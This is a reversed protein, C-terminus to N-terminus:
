IPAASDLFYQTPKTEYNINVATLSSRLWEFWKEEAVQIKNNIKTLVPTDIVHFFVANAEKKLILSIVKGIAEDGKEINEDTNQYFSIYLDPSFGYVEQFSQRKTETSEFVSLLYGDTKLEDYKVPELESIGNKLLELIEKKTRESQFFFKHEISM